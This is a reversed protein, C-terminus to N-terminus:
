IMGFTLVIWALNLQFWFFVQIKTSKSSTVPLWPSTLMRLCTLRVWMLFSRQGSKIQTQCTIVISIFGHISETSTLRGVDTIAYCCVILCTPWQCCSMCGDVKSYYVYESVGSCAKIRVRFLQGYIPVSIVGARSLM